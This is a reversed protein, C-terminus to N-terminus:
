NIDVIDWVKPHVFFVVLSVKTCCIVGKPWGWFCFDPHNRFLILSQGHRMLWIGSYRLFACYCKLIFLWFSLYMVHLRHQWSSIIWVCSYLAVICFKLLWKRLAIIVPIHILALAHECYNRSRMQNSDIRFVLSIKLLYYESLVIWM